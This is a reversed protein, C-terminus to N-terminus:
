STTSGSGRSTPTTTSGTSAPSSATARERLRELTPHVAAPAAQLEGARPFFVTGTISDADADPRDQAILELGTADPM